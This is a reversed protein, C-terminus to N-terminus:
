KKVRLTIFVGTDSEAIELGRYVAKQGKSNGMLEMPSAFTEKGSDDVARVAIHVGKLRLRDALGMAETLNLKYAPYDVGNIRIMNTDNISFIGFTIESYGQGQKLYKSKGDVISKLFKEFKAYEEQKRAKAKDVFKGDIANPVVKNVNYALFNEDCLIVAGNSVRFLRANKREERLVELFGSYEDRSKNIFGWNGGFRFASACTVVAVRGGVSMTEEIRRELQAEQKANM